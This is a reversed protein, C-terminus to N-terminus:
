EGLVIQKLEYQNESLVNMVSRQGPNSVLHQDMMQPDVINNITLGDGAGGGDDKTTTGTNKPPPPVQGGTAMAYRPPSVLGGMHYGEFMEKPFMGRRMGEMVRRGYKKVSKVPMMFEGATAWIPVNDATPSPSHGDVEGGKALTQQKIMAIRSLGAAIAAAAATVALVPGVYPIGVMSTYAKIAGTYTDITAQAISVAKQLYFFEKAEKGSAEYMAGFADALGGLTSSTGEAIQNAIALKQDKDKEAREISRLSLYEELQDIGMGAQEALAFMEQTHADFAALEEENKLLTANKEGEKILAMEEQFV